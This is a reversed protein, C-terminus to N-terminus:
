VTKWLLTGFNPLAVYFFTRNYFFRKFVPVNKQCGSYFGLTHMVGSNATKLKKFDTYDAYDASLYTTFIQPYVWLDSQCRRRDTSMLGYVFHDATKSGQCRSTM